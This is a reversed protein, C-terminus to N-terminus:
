KEKINKFLQIEKIVTNETFFASNKKNEYQTTLSNFLKGIKIENAENNVYEVNSFGEFIEKCVEINSTILPIGYTAMECAMVGQSDARTPLLAVNSKDLYSLIENHSLSKNIWELNEPKNNHFYFDGKGIVCFKFEPNDQAIKTVVDVSYKAGDLNNRITIFDYKKPAKNDFYSKEFDEGVCNYIIHSRNLLVKSDIKTFELFKNYMWESVFIFNSKHANKEFYKRWIFLKLNDYITRKIKTKIKMRNDYDYPKPYVKLTKLVEHGHFFFVIQEFLDNYKKLFRYHSRINPAHSVLLDFDENKTEKTFTKLTYVKVGDIEYDKKADFSIVSVDIGQDVYQKNRSHIYQLSLFGDNRPYSTALVLIKM